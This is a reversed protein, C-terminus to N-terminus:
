PNWSAPSRLGPGDVDGANNVILGFQDEAAEGVFTMLPTCEPVSAVTEGPIVAASDPYGSPDLPGAPSGDYGPQFQALLAIPFVLIYVFVLLTSYRFSRM